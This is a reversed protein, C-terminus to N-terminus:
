CCCLCYNHSNLYLLCVCAQVPMQSFFQVAKYLSACNGLLMYLTVALLETITLPKSVSMTMMMMMLMLLLLLGTHM